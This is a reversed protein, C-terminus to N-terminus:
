NWVKRNIQLRTTLLTTMNVAKKNDKCVTRQSVAFSRARDFTINDQKLRGLTSSCPKCPEGEPLAAANM